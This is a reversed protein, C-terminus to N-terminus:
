GNEAETILRDLEEIVAIVEERLLASDETPLSASTVAGSIGLPLEPARSVILSLTKEMRGLAREIRSIALSSEDPDLEM